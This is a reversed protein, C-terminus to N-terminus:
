IRFFLLHDIKKSWRLNSINFSSRGQRGDVREISCTQNMGNTSFWMTVSQRVCSLLMSNYTIIRKEVVSRFISDRIPIFDQFMHEVATKISELVLLLLLTQYMHRAMSAPVMITGAFSKLYMSVTQQQCSLRAYVFM